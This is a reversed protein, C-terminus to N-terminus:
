NHKQNCVSFSVQLFHFMNAFMGFHVSNTSHQLILDLFNAPTSLFQAGLVTLTMRGDKMVVISLQPFLYPWITGLPM